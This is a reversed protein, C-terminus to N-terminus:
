TPNSRKQLPNSIKPPQQEGSPNYAACWRTSLLGLYLELHGLGSSRGRLSGAGAGLRGLGSTLLPLDNKFGSKVDITVKFNKFCGL